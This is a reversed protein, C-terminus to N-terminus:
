TSRYPNISLLIIDNKDVKSPIRRKYFVSSEPPEDAFEPSTHLYISFLGENGKFFMEWFPALPLRGRTLFMFAIKPTRNFPPQVIRPAMSARWMLEDDSMSHSLDTPSVWERLTLSHNCRQMCPYQPSPSSSFLPPFANLSSRTLDEYLVFRRFHDNIIMGLILVIFSVSICFIITTAVQFKGDRIERRIRISLEDRLM